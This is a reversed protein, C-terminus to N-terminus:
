RPSPEAAEWEGDNGWCAVTGDTRIACAHKRGIAVKTFKGAPPLSEFGWCRLSADIAIACFGSSHSAAIQTYTGELADVEKFIERGTENNWCVATADQQIGCSDRLLVPRSETAANILAGVHPPHSGRVHEWCEFEGAPRVGCRGATIQVFPGPPPDLSWASRATEGWCVVEGDHRLACAAPASVEVFVGDPPDLLGTGDLVGWMDGWCSLSGDGVLGCAFDNGHMAADSLSVATFRVGEPPDSKHEGWCEIVGSDRVGCTRLASASVDVFVGDPPTARGVGSYYGDFYPEIPESGSCAGGVLAVALLWVFSKM